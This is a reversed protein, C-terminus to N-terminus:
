SVPNHRAHGRIVTVSLPLSPGTGTVASVIARVYRKDGIYGRKYTKAADAAAFSAPLAGGLLDAAAVDTFTTGDASEQIKITATPTTGAFTGLDLSFTASEFGQLDVSAGNVAATVTQAAISASVGVNNYLDRM